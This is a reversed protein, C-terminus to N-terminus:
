IDIGQRIRLIKKRIQAASEVAWPLWLIELHIRGRTLNGWYVATIVLSAFTIAFVSWLLFTKHFLRGAFGLALLLVLPVYTSFVIVQNRIGSGVFPTIYRWIKRSVAGPIQSANERIFFVAMKNQERDREAEGQIPELHERYEPIGMPSKWMGFSAPDNWAYPNNSGLLTEGGETALLVPYGIEVANRACWSALVVGIGCSMVALFRFLSRDRILVFFYLLLFCPIAHPRIMTLLGWGVGLLLWKSYRLSQLVANSWLVVFGLLPIYFAESLVTVSYFVWPPYVATILSAVRASSRNSIQKAIGYTAFVSLSALILCAIRAALVSPGVMALVVSILMAPIPMRYATPHPTGDSSQQPVMQYGQGSSLSAAPWYYEPEDAVLISHDTFFLM